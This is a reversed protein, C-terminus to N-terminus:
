CRRSRREERAKPPASCTSGSSTWAASTGAARLARAAANLALELTRLQLAPGKAILLAQSDEIPRFSVGRDTTAKAARRAAEEADVALILARVRQRLPGPAMTQAAARIRSEVEACVEASCPGTEEILVRAQPLLVRGADLEALLVPLQRVLHVAADIRDAASRQGILCSGAVELLLSDYPAEAQWDERTTKAELRALVRAEAAFERARSRQIAALEDLAADWGPDLLSTLSM